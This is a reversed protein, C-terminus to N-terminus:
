RSPSQAAQRQDLALTRQLVHQCLSRSFDAIRVEDLQLVALRHKAV